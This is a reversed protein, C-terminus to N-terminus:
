SCCRVGRLQLAFPKTYDFQRAHLLRKLLYSKSNPADSSPRYGQEDMYVYMKFEEIGTVTCIM